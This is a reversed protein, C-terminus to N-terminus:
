PRIGGASGDWGAPLTADFRGGTPKDVSLKRYVQRLLATRLFKRAAFREFGSGADSVLSSALEEARVM